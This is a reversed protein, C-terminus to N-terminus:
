AQGGRGRGERVSKKKCTTALFDGLADSTNKKITPTVTEEHFRLTSGFSVCWDKFENGNTKTMFSTKIKQSQHSIIKERNESNETTTVTTEM